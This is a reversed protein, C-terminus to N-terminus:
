RCQLVCAIGRRHQASVDRERWHEKREWTRAASNPLRDKLDAVQAELEAVPDTEPAAQEAGEGAAAAEAEPTDTEPTQPAQTKKEEDSM